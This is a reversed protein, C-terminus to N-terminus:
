PLLVRKGRPFPGQREDLLKQAKKRAVQPNLQTDENIIQIPRDKVKGTGQTAYKIGLEFGRTCEKAFYELFGTADLLLGIRIPGTTQPSAMALGGLLLFGIAM